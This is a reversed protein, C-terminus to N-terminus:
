ELWRVAKEWESDNDIYEIVRKAWQRAYDKVFDILIEYNHKWNIYIPEHFKM